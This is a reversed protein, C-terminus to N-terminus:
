RYNIPFDTCVGYAESIDWDKVLEPMLAISRSTIEKGPATLLFGNRSLVVGEEHMFANIKSFNSLIELAAINKCHLWLGKKSLFYFTVKYQPKDHGSFFQDDIHWVDMEADFGMDLARQIWSPDNEKQSPGNTNGRHALLLM